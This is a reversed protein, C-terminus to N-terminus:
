APAPTDASSPLDLRYTCAPFRVCGHFSRGLKPGTKYTLIGLTAGCRPCAAAAAPADTTMPVVPAAPAAPPASPVAGAGHKEKLHRVHAAHTRWNPELRGSQIRALVRTVEAQDLLTATNEEIAARCGDLKVVNPPMATKFEARGVFVVLSFLAREDVEVLEALTRLHKHNQRLPNQFAHSRRYIKQTWKKDYAKGFIWGDYNKTEIVFIGHPSVVVHDIQTSGDETPLTLNDLVRYREAPLLMLERHLRREGIWGKFSPFKLLAGLLSLFLVPLLLRWSQALVGLLLAFPDIMTEEHFHMHYIFLFM